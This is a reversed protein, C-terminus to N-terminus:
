EFAALIRSADSWRGGNTPAGLTTFALTRGSETRVMATFCYGATDTYGTKAALVEV